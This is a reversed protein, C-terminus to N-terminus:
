REPLDPELLARALSLGLRLPLQALDLAPHLTQPDLQADLLVDVLQQATCRHETSSRVSDQASRARSPSTQARALRALIELASGAARAARQVRSLYLM